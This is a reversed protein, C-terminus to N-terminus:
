QVRTAKIISGGSTTQLVYHPQGSKSFFYLAGGTEILPQHDTPEGMKAVANSINQGVWARADQSQGQAALSTGASGLLGAVCLAAATNLWWRRHTLNPRLARDNKKMTNALM